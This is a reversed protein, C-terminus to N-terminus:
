IASANLVLLDFKGHHRHLRLIEQDFKGKFAQSVQFFTGFSALLPGPIDSIPSFYRFGVITFAFSFSLVILLIQLASLDGLIELLDMRLMFM